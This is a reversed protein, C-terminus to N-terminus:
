IRKFSRLIPDAKGSDVFTVEVQDGAVTVALQNSIGAPALFLRSEGVLQLVFTTQGEQMFSGIREVKAKVTQLQAGGALDAGAQRTLATRYANVAEQLTKGRGSATAQGNTLVVGTFTNTVGDAGEAHMPVIWTEEGFLRYLLPYGPTFGEAKFAAKAAERAADETGLGALPIFRGDNARADMMVYGILSADTMSPSTVGSFWQLKGEEDSVLLLSDTGSSADTLQRIGTQSTIANWWGGSLRGWDQARQAAISAPIVQDVWAPTQDLAYRTEAGSAADILLVQDITVGQDFVGVGRQGLSMAWYPHGSDDLEFSAEELLENPAAARAVRDLRRGFWGDPTAALRMAHFTAPRTPDTASLTVYGCAADRKFFSTPELAAAWILGDASRSLFLKGLTCQSGVQGISQAARGRAVSEPVLVIQNLGIEPRNADVTQIKGLEAYAGARLFEASSVTAVLFIGLALVVKAAPIRWRIQKPHLKIQGGPGRTQAASRILDGLDAPISLLLGVVLIFLLGWPDLPPLSLLFVGFTVVYVFLGIGIRRKWPGSTLFPLAVLLAALAYIM